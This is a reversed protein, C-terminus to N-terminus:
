KEKRNEVKGVTMLIMTFLVVHVGLISLAWANKGAGLMLLEAILEAIYIQKVKKRFHLRENESIPKSQAPIPLRKFACPMMIIESLFLWKGVTTSDLCEILVVVVILMGASLGFCGLSTRAHYGGAYGRIMLFALTFIFVIWYAHFIIAILVSSVINICFEILMQYGYIYINRDEEALTGNSIQMDIIKNVMSEFM